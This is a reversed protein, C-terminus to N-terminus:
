SSYNKEGCFNVCRRVEVGLYTMFVDGGCVMGVWMYVANILGESM